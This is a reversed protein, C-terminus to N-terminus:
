ILILYPSKYFYINRKDELVGITNDELILVTNKELVGITNDELIL